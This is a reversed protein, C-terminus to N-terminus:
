IVGLILPFCVWFFKSEPSPVGGGIQVIDTIKVFIYFLADRLKVSTKLKFPISKLKFKKPPWKLGIQVPRESLKSAQPPM